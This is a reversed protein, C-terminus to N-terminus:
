AMKVIERFREKCISGCSEGILLLDAEFNRSINEYRRERLYRCPILFIDVSNIIKMILHALHLFGLIVLMESGFYILKAFIYYVISIFM